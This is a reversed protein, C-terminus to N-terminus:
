AEFEDRELGVVLPDEDIRNLARRRAADRSDDDVWAALGVVSDGDAIGENSGVQGEDLDMQAVGKGPLTKAVGGHRGVERGADDDPKPCQAVFEGHLGKGGRSSALRCARRAGDEKRSQGHAPLLEARCLGCSFRFWPM